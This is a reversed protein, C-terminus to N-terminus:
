DAQMARLLWKDESSFSKRVRATQCCCQRIGVTIAFSIPFEHHACRVFTKRSTQGGFFNASNEAGRVVMSRRGPAPPFPGQLLCRITRAEATRLHTLGSLLRRGHPILM